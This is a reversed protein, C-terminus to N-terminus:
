QDAENGNRRRKFGQGSKQVPTKRRKKWSRSPRTICITIGYEGVDTEDVVFFLSRGNDLTLVPDYTKGLYNKRGPMNRNFPRFDVDIIRRGVLDRKTASM